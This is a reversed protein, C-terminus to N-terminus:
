HSEEIVWLLEKEDVAMAKSIPNFLLISGPLEADWKMRAFNNIGIKRYPLISKFIQIKKDQEKVKV